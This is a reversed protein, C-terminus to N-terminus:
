SLIAVALYCYLILSLADIITTIFPSAVVAPDLHCKKALIPLSCGVLKSLVVTALLALSIVLCVENTYGAVGLLLRDVLILKAFCAAALTVGVFISVRLEKWMIHLIDGTEIEGLSLSRIVTVSSQSGCNGGSGMLMPVCAFLVTSLHLLTGEFHNIILGTFTSTILLLLLWPIRSKWMEWISKKLYPTDDSSIIAAMMEIDETTEEEIVDIADDVTVIGVLREEKDVIPLALFGHDSLKRAVDERNDTTEASIVNTEMIDSILDTPEAILLAKATVFGLLKNARDTVYCTYITESAIARRRIKELADAVTMGLKLYVYEVTMISGASDSPYKLIENISKRMEPTAQRLIKDVVNAPMEEIIDAADDVYLEDLMNRIDN